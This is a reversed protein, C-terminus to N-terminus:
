KSCRGQYRGDVKEVLGHVALRHVVRSVIEQHLSTSAKLRTFSVPEPSGCIVDCVISERTTLEVCEGPDCNASACVLRM